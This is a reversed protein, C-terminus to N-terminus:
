YVTDLIDQSPFKYGNIRKRLDVYRIKLKGRQKMNEM